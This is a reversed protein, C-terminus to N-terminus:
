GPPQPQNPFWRKGMLVIVVAGLIPAVRSVVNSWADAPLQRVFPVGSKVMLAAGVFALPLVTGLRGGRRRAWLILGVMVGVVGGVGLVVIAIAALNTALAGEPPGTAALDITIAVTLIGLGLTCLVIGVLIAGFVSRLLPKLVGYAAGCVLGGVFYLAIFAGLPIPLDDLGKPELALAIGAVVLAIITLGIAAYIGDQAGERARQWVPSLSSRPDVSPSKSM